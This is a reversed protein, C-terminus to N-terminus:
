EHECYSQRLGNKSDPDFRASTIRARSVSGGESSRPTVTLDLVQGLGSGIDWLTVFTKIYTENAVECVTVLYQNDQSLSLDVVYGVQQFRLGELRTQLDIQTVSANDAAVFISKGDNSFM